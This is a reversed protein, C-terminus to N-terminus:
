IKVSYIQWARIVFWQVNSAAKEAALHGLFLVGFIWRVLLQMIASCLYYYGVEDVREDCWLLAWCLSWDSTEALRVQLTLPTPNFLGITTYHVPNGVLTAELLPCCSSTTWSGASGSVSPLASQGLGPMRFLGLCFVIPTTEELELLSHSDKCSCLLIWTQLCVCLVSLICGQLSSLMCISGFFYLRHSFGNWSSPHM